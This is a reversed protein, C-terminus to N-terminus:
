KLGATIEPGRDPAWDTFRIVSQERAVGADVLEQAWRNDHTTVLLQFHDSLEGALVTAFQARHSADVSMVVDDLLVPLRNLPSLETALALFLCVGMLDQHGESHMAHPPHDGTEYFDVAFNVGTDTQSITPDFASEDPNVAEYFAAFRDSITEFTEGLVTDRAKIFTKHTTELEAAARAYQRRERVARQSGHYAEDLTQLQSWMKEIMSQDPLAAAAEQLTGVTAVADERAAAPLNLEELDIAQVDTSLDGSLAEVLVTLADQYSRLPTLDIDIDTDTLSDIVRDVATRVSEINGRADKALRDIRDVREDIRALRDARDKLHAELEAPAWPEKCLPCATTTDDISDLGQKILSQEALMKLADEDARLTRIEERLDAVTSATAEIDDTAWADITALRQQVDDRQLPNSAQEVPSPINDQFSNVEELTRIPDGELRQRRANVAELLANLRLELGGDILTVVNNGAIKRIQQLHEDYRTTGDDAANNARKALRKLQKRRGDLGGTNMLHYIQDKRTGPTAIVLELLEDRSLHILGQDAATVLEQFVASQEGGQLESRNSFERVTSFSPGSNTTFTARVATESPDAYQNPVHEKTRINGTGSGRLASIEGTLLFEIAQLITSKGSGNPGVIVSNQGGFEFREEGRIGRFARITLSELQISM